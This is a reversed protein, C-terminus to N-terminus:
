VKWYIVGFAGIRVGSLKFIDELQQVGVFLLEGEFVKNFNQLLTDKFTLFRPRLRLLLGPHHHADRHKSPV